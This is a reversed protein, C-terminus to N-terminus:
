TDGDQIETTADEALKSTPARWWGRLDDCPDLTIQYARRGTPGAGRWPDAFRRGARVDKGCYNRLSFICQDRLAAMKRHSWYIWM